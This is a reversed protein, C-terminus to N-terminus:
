WVLQCRFLLKDHLKVESIVYAKRIVQSLLFDHAKTLDVQLEILSLQGASSLDFQATQVHFM